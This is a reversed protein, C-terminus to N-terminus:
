GCVSLGAWLCVQGCVSLGAWLCVPECVSSGASLGAWLCVPECVSSGLSLGASLCVSRSVSLGAWLCVQGYVSRNVSLAAWLCLQGRWCPHGAQRRGGVVRPLGQPTQLVGRGQVQQGGQHQEPQQSEQAQHAVRQRQVHVVGAELGAGGAGVDQGHADEVQEEAGEGHGALDEVEAERQRVVVGPQAGHLAEEGHEDREACAEDEDGHGQIAPPLDAAREPRLHGSPVDRQGDQATHRRRQHQTHREADQVPPVRNGRAYGPHRAGRAGHVIPESASAEGQDVVDDQHDDEQGAGGGHGGGVHLDGAPDDLMPLLRLQGTFPQSLSQVLQVTVAVFYCAVLVAAQSHLVTTVAFPIGASYQLLVTQVFSTRVSFVTRCVPVKPRFAM